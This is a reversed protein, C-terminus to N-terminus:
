WERNCVGYIMDIYLKYILSSAYLYGIWVLLVCYSVCHPCRGATAAFAVFTHQHAPPISPSKNLNSFLSQWSSVLDLVTIRCTRTETRACASGTWLSACNVPTSHFPKFWVVCIEPCFTSNRCSVLFEIYRADQIYNKSWGVICLIYIYVYKIKVINMNYNNRCTEICSYWGWPTGFNYM